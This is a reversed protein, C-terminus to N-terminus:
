RAMAPRLASPTRAAGEVGGVTVAIITGVACAAATRWRRRRGLSVLAALFTVPLATLISLRLVVVGARRVGLDTLKRSERALEDINQGGPTRLALAAVVVVGGASLGAVAVRRVDIENTGAIRRIQNM